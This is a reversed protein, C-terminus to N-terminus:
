EAIENDIEHDAEENQLKKHHKEVFDIIRVQGANEDSTYEYVWYRSKTQAVSIRIEYRNHDPFERRLIARIVAQKSGTIPHETYVRQLASQASEDSKKVRRQPNPLAYQGKKNVRPNETDKRGHFHIGKSDKSFFFYGFETRSFKVLMTYERVLRFRRKWQRVIKINDLEPYQERIM